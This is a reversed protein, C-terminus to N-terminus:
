SFLAPPYTNALRDIYDGFEDALAPSKIELVNEANTEGSRSLNYSGVFVTDDCVVCKAHMFDHVSGQGWPTSRKASFPIAAVVRDVAALKWAAHQNHRWNARAEEMQTLDLVGRFDARLGHEVLDCLTGLIPGSTLVPSCLRVRSRATAIRQCIESVLKQARGPTFYARVETGDALATWVPPRRGSDAVVPDNWLEEFDAEFAAALPESRLTVIVNEERTWSDNTWNTSGSWVQAGDVVAYKHHMLDPVGPIARHQLGPLERISPAGLVEQQPPPPLGPRRPHDQNYALRVQVGRGIAGALAATVIAEPEGALVLDYVAMDITRRAEALFGALLRAVEAAPQGGDVLFRTAM